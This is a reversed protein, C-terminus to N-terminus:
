TDTLAACSVLTTPSSTSGAENRAETDVATVASAGGSADAADSNGIVGHAVGDISGVVLASILEAEGDTDGM